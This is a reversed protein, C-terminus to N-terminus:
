LLFNGERSETKQSQNKTKQKPQNSKLVNNDKDEIEDDDDNDNDNDDSWTLNLDDTKVRFDIDSQSWDVNNITNTHIPSSVTSTTTSLTEVLNKPLKSLVELALAPCGAKFHSHATTFYLQRELPSMFVKDDFEDDFSMNLSKKKNKEFFKTKQKFILLPHTRLYIYFNFVNPDAQKVEKTEDDYSPHLSGVVNSGLLLTSLSEEHRGLLWLAMSRLFPDPHAKALNQHEGFSDCGLIQEYLLQKLTDSSDGEYLRVIVIALHFDNLRNLCVEVANKLSKGLLFFAVAHEFRQKSLLAYANKLASKRSLEDDFNQSFFKTMKVDQKANQYLGRLINKKNMALYFLAAEMPDNRQQFISKALILM